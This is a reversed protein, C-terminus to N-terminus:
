QVEKTFSTQMLIEPGKSASSTACYRFSGSKLYQSLSLELITFLYADMYKAGLFYAGSIKGGPFLNRIRASQDQANHVTLQRLRKKTSRLSSRIWSLHWSIHRVTQTHTAQWRKKSSSLKWFWPKNKRVKCCTEFPATQLFPQITQSNLRPFTRLRKLPVLLAM